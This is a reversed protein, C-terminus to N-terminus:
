PAGGYCSRLDVAGGAHWRRFRRAYTRPVDDLGAWVDRWYPTVNVEHERVTERPEPLGWAVALAYRLWSLGQWCARSERPRESVDHVVCTEGRALQYLLDAGATLLVDGWRKQECWTSQIRVIRLNPVHELDLHPCHLGNTLNAYHVTV